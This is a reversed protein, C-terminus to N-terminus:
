EKLKGEARQEAVIQEFFQKQRREVYRRRWWLSPALAFLLILLWHPLRIQWSTYINTQDDVDIKPRVLIENKSEENLKFGALWKVSWAEEPLVRSSYFDIQLHGRLGMIGASTKGKSASWEFGEGGGGIGVDGDSRSLLVRVARRFVDEGAAVM